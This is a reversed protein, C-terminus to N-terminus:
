TGFYHAINTFEQMMNEKETVVMSLEKIVV